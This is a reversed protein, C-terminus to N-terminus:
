ASARFRSAAKITGVDLGPPVLLADLAAWPAPPSLGLEEVMRRSELTTHAPAAADPIARTRRSVPQVQDPSAGLRRALHRAAEAYSIDCAASIQVIGAARRTAVRDLAHAIFAPSLPALVMDEFPHIVEGQRLAALWGQILPTAPGLVKTIRVVAVQPGLALLRAEAEAKLRAYTGMPAVPQDPRCFPATGDFVLSTSVFVVFAGGAVLAKALQVTAEVNVRRALAPERECDAQGTMAACLFAMSVRPPPTWDGPLAALNLALGDAPVLRDSRAQRSTGLVDLGLRASYAMLASGILGDAGVVFRM